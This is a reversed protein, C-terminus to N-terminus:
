GAGVRAEVDPIPEDTWEAPWGSRELKGGGAAHEFRALSQATASNIDGMAAAIQEMGVAHQRVSATIQSASGAAQRIAEALDDITQGVQEITRM